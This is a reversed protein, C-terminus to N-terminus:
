QQASRSSTLVGRVMASGERLRDSTYALPSVTVLCRLPNHEMARASRCWGGAARNALGSFEAPTSLRRAEGECRARGASLTVKRVYLGKAGSPKVRGAQRHHGPVTSAMLADADFSVKGIPVHVNAHRDTRYEVKGGKFEGVAKAPDPTVTGTKPNPM